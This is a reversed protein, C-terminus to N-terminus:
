NNKSELPTNKSEDSDKYYEESSDVITKQQRVVNKVGKANRGLNQYDDPTLGFYVAEKGEKKLKNFKEKVNKETLITWKVNRASYVDIEPLEIPATKVDDKIIKVEDVDRTSSSCSALIFSVLLIPTIKYIM